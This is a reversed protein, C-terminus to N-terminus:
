PPLQPASLSISTLLSKEHRLFFVSDGAHGAGGALGVHGPTDLLQLAHLIHIHAQQGILHRHGIILRFYVRLLDGAGYFFDAIPSERLLLRLRAATAFLIKAALPLFTSAPGFFLPFVHLVPKDGRHNQQHGQHIHGHAVHHPQRHGSKQHARFVGHNGSQHLQEEGNRHQKDVPVKVLVAQFGEDMQGGIHVGQHGNARPSGQDIPEKGHESHSVAEAVPIHGQHLFVGVSQIKLGGGHNQGQYRNAFIQLGAGLGLGGIGQALQHIQGGLRRHNEPLPFLM